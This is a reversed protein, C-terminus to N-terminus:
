PVCINTVCVSPEPEYGVSVAPEAESGGGHDGHGSHGGGRHEDHPHGGHKREHHGSREDGGAHHTHPDSPTPAASHHHTTGLPASALVTDSHQHGGGASVSTGHGSSSHAHHGLEADRGGGHSHGSDSGSHALETGADHMAMAAGEGHSHHHGGLLLAPPMLALCAAGLMTIARNGLRPPVSVRALDPTLLLLLAPISAIEFLKTVGDKFGVPEADGGEFPLGVTRSVVWLGISSLTMAIAAAILLRSPPRSILLAGLGIQLVAVLMFGALMVPIDSHDGAASIHIVGAGISLVAAIQGVLRVPDSADPGYARKNGQRSLL